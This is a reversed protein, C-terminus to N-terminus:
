LVFSCVRATFPTSRPNFYPHKDLTESPRATKVLGPNAELVIFKLLSIFRLTYNWSKSAM